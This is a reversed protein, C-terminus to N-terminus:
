INQKVLYNLYKSNLAYSYKSLSQDYTCHFFHKDEFDCALEMFLKMWHLKYKQIEKLYYFPPDPNNRFGYTEHYHRPFIFNNGIFYTTWVYRTLQFIFDYLTLDNHNYIYYDCAQHCNTEYIIRIERNLVSKSPILCSYICEMIDCNLAINNFLTMFIQRVHLKKYRDM